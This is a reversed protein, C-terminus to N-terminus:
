DVMFLANSFLLKGNEWFGRFLPNDVMYVLQGSGYKEVGFVLTEAIKQQADSGAFGAVPEINNGDLYAVTGKNLYAYADGGLKLSFYIDDYGYALPHTNNIRTKFIAGTIENKIQERQDHDYVPIPAISDKKINKAKLQLTKDKAFDKLASGMAILKGGDRVWQKLSKMRAPNLFQSYPKGSPLILIDYESLDVTNFYDSNLVSVPYQLQQEFFYWIEGFNLTSTPKGSLLAVKAKKLPQVSHSGFDKGGDVFGTSTPYIVQQHRLAKSRLSDLFDPLNKNDSKTIILTGRDYSVGDMVFPNQAYRVKIDSNLLDALFRADSFSNWKILFAYSKSSLEELNLADFKNRDTTTRAAVKTESAIANLGYAYPLSWATIDYTLSDSLKTNPEFLVKVLTGKKQDSNVVLANNDIKVSGNKGLVYNFGKATKDTAWGYEIEHKTLLETLAKLKDPNGNLVYSKYKFDKPQYFKKFEQNLRVANQSAIELTSLGTTHHHLIRDKLTLTDGTGTRVGLGASGSGGQEYTMGISGNYTPFTDGYSPYLLDFVEKTFYFWGNADFYKAHNKGVTTQFERQFDTIVEHFPEAAPAFYYPSDVGQEHFDVHVHPLWKNYVKIRQRSEVQTLWAWDRNLDFMYHNPRGNLWPEHHEASNPDITYPSNKYQNYWNVYRDRGDPNVCPDVIVLTNELYEEKQTLLEYVTKMSAETSVSENGHVNYSMWVIAINPEGKGETNKLHELRIKERSKMNKATSIYALILPRGENTEGYNELQVRSPDNEALYSYYDVVRHHPTFRTGLEYGLFDSPAKLNQAHSSLCTCIFLLSIFFRM